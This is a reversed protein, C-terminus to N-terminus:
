SFGLYVSLLLTRNSWCGLPSGGEGGWRGRPPSKVDENESHKVEGM